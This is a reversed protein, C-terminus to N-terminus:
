VSGLAIETPRVLERAISASSELLDKAGDILGKTRSFPWQYHLDPDM